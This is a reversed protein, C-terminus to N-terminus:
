KYRWYNTYGQYEEESAFERLILKDKVLLVRQQIQLAIENVGHEQLLVVQEHPVTLSQIRGEQVHLFGIRRERQLDTLEEQSENNVNHLFSVACAVRSDEGSKSTIKYLKGQLYVANLGEPLVKSNLVGVSLTKGQVENSIHEILM